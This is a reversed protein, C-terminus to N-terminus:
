RLEVESCFCRVPAPLLSADVQRWRRFALQLCVAVDVFAFGGVNLGRLASSPPSCSVTDVGALTAVAGRTPSETSPTHSFLGDSSLPLRLSFAFDLPLRSILAPQHLLPMTLRHASTGREMTSGDFGEYQICHTQIWYSPNSSDVM